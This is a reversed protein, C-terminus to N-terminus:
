KFVEKSYLDIEEALVDQVGPFTSMPLGQSACPIFYLKGCADCAERVRERVIERTWGPFDVTASDIGGMFSIKGGYQKILEPINNTNMVGQWVDIGMDIM